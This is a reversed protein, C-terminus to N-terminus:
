KKNPKFVGISDVILPVKTIKLWSQFEALIKLQQLVLNESDYRLYKYYPLYSQVSACNYTNRTVYSRFVSFITWSM